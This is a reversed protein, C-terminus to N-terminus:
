LFMCNGWLILCSQRYAIQSRSHNSINSSTRGYSGNRICILQFQTMGILSIYESDINHFKQFCSHYDEIWIYWISRLIGDRNEAVHHSNIVEQDTSHFIKFEIISIKLTFESKLFIKGLIHLLQLLEKAFNYYYVSYHNQTSQVRWYYHIWLFELQM